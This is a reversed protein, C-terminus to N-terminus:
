HLHERRACAPWAHWGTRAHMRRAARNQTGPRAHDPRGHFGLAHWAGRSFQYAGFYGNGTDMRYNNGSECLRLRYLETKMPEAAGVPVATAVGAIVLGLAIVTSVGFRARRV